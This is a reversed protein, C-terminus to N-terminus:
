AEGAQAPALAARGRAWPVSEGRARQKKTEQGTTGECLQQRGAIVARLQPNELCLGPLPRKAGLQQLRLRIHSIFSRYAKQLGDFYIYQVLPMYFLIGHVNLYSSIIVYKVM